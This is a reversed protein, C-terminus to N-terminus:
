VENQPCNELALPCVARNNKYDFHLDDQCNPCFQKAYNIPLLDPTVLAESEVQEQDDSPSEIVEKQEVKKPTAM